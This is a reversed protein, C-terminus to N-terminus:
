CKILYPRLVKVKQETENGQVEQEQKKDDEEEEKEM